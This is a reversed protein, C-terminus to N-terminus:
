WWVLDVDVIWHHSGCCGNIIVVDNYVNEIFKQNVNKGTTGKNKKLCFLFNKYSKRYCLLISCYFLLVSLFIFIHCCFCLKNTRQSLHFVFAHTPLAHMTCKNKNISVLNTSAVKNNSAQSSLDLQKM